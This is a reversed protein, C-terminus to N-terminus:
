SGGGEGIPERRRLVLAVNHGGFGLSENVAALPGDPLRRPEGAIVDLGLAGDIDDANACHPALRHLLSLATIVTEVAGAAGMLHGLGSKPACVPVRATRDGFVTRLAAAEAADGQPTSTAHANVLDIDAPDLRAEHLAAQIASALGAGDARPQAIHHSDTTVGSGAVECYVRAGRERASDADELVMMGAGEGLVFGDRSVGFPRSAGAPDDHRRSLARMAAFAALTLANVNADTGGVLVAKARGARILRAGIAVAEAGSACASAATQVPARAGLDLGVQVAACDAIFMPVAFPSVATPGGLRLADYAALMASQAGFATGVVVGLDEPAVAARAGAAAPGLGSDRWAERAALVAFRASRDLRDFSRGLQAGSPKAACRAALRSPLKEAWEEDLIAPARLGTLLASWTDGASQGLPTYAGLGTM